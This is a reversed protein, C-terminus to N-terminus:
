QWGALNSFSEYSCGAEYELSDGTKLEYADSAIALLAEFEVDKPMNTPDILAAHCYDRGNAVTACRVYLFWDASFHSTEKSYSQKGINSAHARTDLQYLLYALREEFQCIESKSKLALAKVVPDIVAADDGTKEWDLLAILSWFKDESMMKKPKQALARQRDARDRDEQIKRVEEELAPRDHVWRWEWYAEFGEDDSWNGGYTNCETAAEDSTVPINFLFKISSPPKGEIWHLAPQGQYAFRRQQVPRLLSTDTAVPPKDGLYDSTYVLASKKVTRLVRIAGFWGNPHKCLFVDGPNMTM